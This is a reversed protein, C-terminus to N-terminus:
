LQKKKLGFPEFFDGANTQVDPVKKRNKTKPTYSFFFFLSSLLHLTQIATQKGKQM